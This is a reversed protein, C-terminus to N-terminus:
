NIQFIITISNTPLRSFIHSIVYYSTPIKKRDLAIQITKETQLAFLKNKKREMKQTLIKRTKNIRVKDFICLCALQTNTVKFM